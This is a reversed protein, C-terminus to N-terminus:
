SITKRSKRGKQRDITVSDAAVSSPTITGRRFVILVDLAGAIYDLNEKHRNHIDLNCCDKM